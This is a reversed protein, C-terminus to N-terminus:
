LSAEKLKGTRNMNYGNGVLVQINNVQKIGLDVAPFYIGHVAIMFSEFIGIRSTKM